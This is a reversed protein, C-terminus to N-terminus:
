FLKYINFCQNSKHVYFSRKFFVRNKKFCLKCLIERKKAKKNRFGKRKREACLLYVCTRVEIYKNKLHSNGTTM